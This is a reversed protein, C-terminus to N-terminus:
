VHARGIQSALWGFTLSGASGALEPLIALLALYPLPLQYRLQIYLNVFYSIDLAFSFIIAGAALLAGPTRFVRLDLSPHDSRRLAMAVAGMVMAAVIGIAIAWMVFGLGALSIALCALALALGGLVPTVLETPSSPPDGAGISIRALFFTVAAAVLWLTPVFRWGISATILTGAVPALIYVVPTLAAMLGFMKARRAPDSFTVNVLSLGVVTLPVGGVGCLVRGAFMVPLSTALSMLAAGACMIAASGMLVARRGYRVALAGALFISILSAVTPVVALYNLGDVSLSFEDAVPVLIFESAAEFTLSVAMALFATVVLLTPRPGRRGVHM